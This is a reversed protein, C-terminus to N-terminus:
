ISSIEFRVRVSETTLLDDSAVVRVQASTGLSQIRRLAEFIRENTGNAFFYPNEASLLPMVNKARAAQEARNLLALLQNFIRADGIGSDITIEALTEGAVFATRSPVLLFQSEIQTEGIAHDRAATLRVSVPVDFTGLYEALHALIADGKIEIIQNGVKAELPILAITSKQSALSNRAQELLQLLVERNREPTGRPSVTKEAFVTGQTVMIDGTSILEAVKSLRDAASSLRVIRAQLEVLQSQAKQNDQLTENLKQQATEFGSQAQAQAAIAKSLDAQAANLQGSMNDLSSEVTALKLQAANVLQQKQKLLARTREVQASAARLKSGLVGFAQRAERYRARAVQASQRAAAANRAADARSRRAAALLTQTSQLQDNTGRLVKQLRELQRESVRIANQKSRIEGRLAQALATARKQESEARQRAENAARKEADYHLLANTLSRSTFLLIAVTLLMIAVSAGMTILTATQRPRLGLLSVRKKGLTKGLNDALYAIVCTAVILGLLLIALTM